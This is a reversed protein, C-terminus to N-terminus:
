EDDEEQSEHQREAWLDLIDNHLADSLVEYAGPLSLLQSASLMDVINELLTDFEEYTIQSYDPEDSM